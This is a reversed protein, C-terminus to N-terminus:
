AKPVGRRWWPPSSSAADRRAAGERRLREEIKWDNIFWDVSVIKRTDAALQRRVALERARLASEATM